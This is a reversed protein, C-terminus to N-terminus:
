QGSNRSDERGLEGYHHFFLMRELYHFSSCPIKQFSYKLVQVQAVEEEKRETRKEEWAGRAGTGRIFKEERRNKRREIM